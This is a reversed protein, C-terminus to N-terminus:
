IRTRKRVCNRCNCNHCYEEDGAQKQVQEHMEGLLSLYPRGWPYQKFKQALLELQEQAEALSMDKTGNADGRASSNPLESVGARAFLGGSMRAISNDSAHVQPTSGLQTSSITPSRSFSALRPPSTFRSSRNYPSATHPSRRTSLIKLREQNRQPTLPTSQSVSIRSSSPASKQTTWLRPLRPFDPPKKSATPLPNSQHTDQNLGQELTAFYSYGNVPEEIPRIEDSNPIQPGTDNPSSASPSEMPEQLQEEPPPPVDTSTDTTPTRQSLKRKVQSIFDDDFQPVFDESLRSDSKLQMVYRWAQDIIEGTVSTGNYNRIRDAINDIFDDPLRALSAGSTKTHKATRSKGMLRSLTSTHVRLDYKNEVWAQLDKLSLNSNNHYYNLISEKQVESLVQRRTM